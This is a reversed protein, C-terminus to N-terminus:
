SNQGFVDPYRRMLEEAESEKEQTQLVMHLSRVLKAFDFEKRKDAQEIDAIVRRYVNEAEFYKKLAVYLSILHLSATVTSGAALPLAKRFIFVAEKFSLIAPELKNNTAYATGLKALAVGLTLDERKLKPRLIAVGQSILTEASEPDNTMGMLQGLSVLSKGIEPHDEKYIERKIKHAEQAMEKAKEVEKGYLYLEAVQGMAYALQERNQGVKKLLEVGKKGCELAEGIKKLNLKVNLLNLNVNAIRKVDNKAIKELIRLESEYATEAEQIQQLRVCAFAIDHYDDAITIHSDPFATQDITLKSRFLPLALSPQNNTLLSIGLKGMSKGIEPHSSPYLVQKLSLARQFSTIAAPIDKRTMLVDGLCECADALIQESGRDTKGDVLEVARNANGLAEEMKGVVRNMGAYAQAILSLLGYKGTGAADARTEAQQFAQKAKNFDGMSQYTNGLGYYTKAVHLANPHDTSQYFDLASTYYELAKPGDQLNYHVEGLEFLCEGLSIPDSSHHKLLTELDTLTSKARHLDWKRLYLKALEMSLTTRGPIDNPQQVKHNELAQVLAAESTPTSFRRFLPMGVVKYHRSLGRLLM